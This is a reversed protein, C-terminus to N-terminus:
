FIIILQKVIEKRHRSHSQSKPQQLLHQPFAAHKSCFLDSSGQEGGTHFSGSGLHAFHCIDHADINWM